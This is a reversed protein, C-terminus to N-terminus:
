FLFFRKRPLEFQKYIRKATTGSDDNGYMTYLWEIESQPIGRAYLAYLSGLNAIVESEDIEKFNIKVRQEELLKEALTDLQEFANLAHTEEHARVFINASEIPQKVYFIHYYFIRHNICVRYSTGVARKCAKIDCDSNTKGYKKNLKLSHKLISEVFGDDHYKDIHGIPLTIGLIKLNAYNM